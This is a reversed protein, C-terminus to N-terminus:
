VMDQLMRKMSGPERSEETVGIDEFTGTVRSSGGGPVAFDIRGHVGRAM